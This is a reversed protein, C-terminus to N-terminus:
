NSIFSILESKTLTGAKTAQAQGGVFLMFTPVAKVNFKHALNPCSDVNVKAIVCDVEPATEEIVPLMAKCPGCWPAWFDVLVKGNETLLGDFTDEEVNVINKNNM